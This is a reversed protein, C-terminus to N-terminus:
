MSTTIKTTRRRHADARPHDGRSPPVPAAHPAVRLDTTRSRGICLIHHEQLAKGHARRLGECQLLAAIEAASCTTALPPAGRQESGAYVRCTAGASPLGGSVDRGDVLVTPSGFGRAHDAVDHASLDHEKWAEPLGVERLARRLQERAAPVNPCGPSHILEVAPM